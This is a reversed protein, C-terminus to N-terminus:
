IVVMKRTYRKGAIEVQCFYIGPQLTSLHLTITCEGAAYFVQDQQAVVAGALNFLTVSVIEPSELQFSIEAYGSAPNPQISFDQEEMSRDEIDILNGPDSNFNNDAIPGMGPELALFATYESLVRERKSLQIISQIIGTTQTGGYMSKLHRGAWLSPLTKDGTKIVNPNVPYEAFVLNGDNVEYVVKLIFDPEGAYKGLLVFADNFTLVQDAGGFVSYTSYVFHSNQATVSVSSFRASSAARFDLLAEQYGSERVTHFSGGFAATLLKYLYTNGSYLSNDIWFHNGGKWFDLVHMPKRINWSELLIQNYTNMSNTSGWHASTGSLLVLSGKKGNEDIFQLGANMLRPIDSYQNQLRESTLTILSDINQRSAAVWSEAIYTIHSLGTILFNISDGEALTSFLHQRLGDFVEENSLNSNIPGIFDVLFVFKKPDTLGFALAPNFDFEFYKEGDGAAQFTTAQIIKPEPRRLKLMSPVESATLNQYVAEYCPGEALNVASFNFFDESVPIALSDSPFYRFTCQQIERESLNLINSPLPISFEHSLVHEIPALWTIKAKRPLNSMIPFIRFMYHDDLVGSNPEIDGWSDFNLVKYKYLIAPDIRRKVLGEYISNATWKDYMGAEMISDGVWLWMDIVESEPPLKFIMHMELSDPSGQFITERVSFNLYMGIEAFAGRPKIELLVSDISMRDGGFSRVNEIRLKEPNYGGWQSFVHFGVFQFLLLVFLDKFSFM